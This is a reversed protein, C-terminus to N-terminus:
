KISCSGNECKARLFKHRNKAVYKYIPVGILDMLPIYAMWGLVSTLPFLIALKRVGYFGKYVTGRPSVVHMLEKLADKNLSAFEKMKEAEQVSIWHTHKLWDLGQFIRKTERCLACHEDYFVIYKM